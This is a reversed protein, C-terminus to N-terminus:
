HSEGAKTALFDMVALMVGSLLIMGQIALLWGINTPDLKEPKLFIELLYISSIAAISGILKLKTGSFDISATWTPWDPHEKTLTCAVFNRYGALMVILLLNGVLSMDILSLIWLTTSSVTTELLGPLHVVLEHVFVVFLGLLAIALGFYFPLMIWRSAFLLQELIRKIGIPM